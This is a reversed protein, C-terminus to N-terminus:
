LCPQVALALRARDLVRSAGAFGELRWARQVARRVVKASTRLRPKESCGARAAVFPPVQDMSEFVDTLLAVGAEHYPRAWRDFVWAVPLLLREARILRRSIAISAGQSLAAYRPARARNLAIADRLHQEFPGAMIGLLQRVDM